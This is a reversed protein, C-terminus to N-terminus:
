VQVGYKATTTLKFRVIVTDNNLSNGICIIENLRQEVIRTERKYGMMIINYLSKTEKSPIHPYIALRPTM